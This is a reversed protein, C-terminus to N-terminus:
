FPMDNVKARAPPKAGGGRMFEDMTPVKAAAAREMMKEMRDRSPRPSVERVKEDVKNSKIIM